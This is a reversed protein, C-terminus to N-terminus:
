GKQHIHLLPESVSNPLKILTYKLGDDEAFDSDYVYYLVDNLILFWHSEVYVLGENCILKIEFEEAGDLVIQEQYLLDIDMELFDRVSETEQYSLKFERENWDDYYGELNAINMYYTIVTEREEVPCFLLGFEDSVLNFGQNNDIAYYNGCQSRNLFGDTKYSFVPNSIADTDYVEFDLVEYVVGDATFRTDQYGNEEIVIETEVFGDPPTSNVMVIFTFFGVPILTITVGISLIVAFVATLAKSLPNKVMRRKRGIILGVIGALIGFTGIMLLILLFIVAFLAGM